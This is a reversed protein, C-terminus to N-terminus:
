IAELLSSAICHSHRTYVEVYIPWVREHEIDSDTGIYQQRITSISIWHCNSINRFISKSFDGLSSPFSQHLNIEIPWIIQKSNSPFCITDVISSYFNSIYQHQMTPMLYTPISIHIHNHVQAFPGFPSACCVACVYMCAQPLPNSSITLHHHDPWM